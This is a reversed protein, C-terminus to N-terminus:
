VNKKYISWGNNPLWGNHSEAYAQCEPREAQVTESLHSFRTKPYIFDGKKTKGFSLKARCKSERCVLELWPNDSSDKRCVYRINRSKCKGCQTSSFLEQVRAIGQFLESENEEEVQFSLNSDVKINAKISM